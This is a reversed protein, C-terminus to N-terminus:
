RDDEPIAALRAAQAHREGAQRAEDKTEYHPAEAQYCVICEWGYSPRGIIEKVLREGNFSVRATSRSTTAVYHEAVAPRVWLLAMGERAQDDTLGAARLPAACLQDLRDALLLGDVGPMLQSLRHAAVVREASRTLFGPSVV